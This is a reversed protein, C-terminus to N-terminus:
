SRGLRTWIETLTHGGPEKRRREIEEDSIPSKAGPPLSFGGKGSPYFYGLLNGSEDCFEVEEELKSLKTKLSEEIIIKAM